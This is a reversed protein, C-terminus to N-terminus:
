ISPRMSIFGDGVLIRATYPFSVPFLLNGLSNRIKQAIKTATGSTTPLM